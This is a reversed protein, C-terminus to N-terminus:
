VKILKLNLFDQLIQLRTANLGAEYFNCEYTLLYWCIINGIINDIIMGISVSRMVLVKVPLQYCKNEALLHCDEESLEIVM